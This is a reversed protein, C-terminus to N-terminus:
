KKFTVKERNATRYEKLHADSSHRVVHPRPFLEWDVPETAQDAIIRPFAAQEAASYEDLRRSVRTVPAMVAGIRATLAEPMNADPLLFLREIYLKRWADPRLFRYVSM